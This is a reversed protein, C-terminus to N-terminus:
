SYIFGAVMNYLQDFYIDSHSGSLGGGQYASGARVTHIETLDAVILRKTYDYMSEPTLNQGVVLPDVGGFASVTDSTPGADGLARRPNFLNAVRGAEKYWLCLATDRQSITLLMRLDAIKYVAGYIDSPELNDDDTAPELLVVRFRTGAPVLITGGDIDTQMDQLAACIVKSGFSHGIMIIRLPLNKNQRASLILRLMSYVANRGVVDARHEMTYFTLLQLATLPSNIDETIESPWHVGIGLNNLPPDRFGPDANEFSLVRSSLEVSFRSYADMMQAANTSWGHSYIFIDRFGFPVVVMAESVVDKMYPDFIIGNENVPVNIYHAM